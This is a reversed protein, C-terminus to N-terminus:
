IRMPMVVCVYDKNKEPVIITPNLSNKFEFIAFDENINQLVDKIFSPNFSIEIPEGEYNTELEVEGFGVGSTSASIKLLNSKFCFKIVASGELSLKDVTLIAMQKVASLTNKVNLKVKSSLTRPIVQEYNPFTGEILTSTFIIEEMEIALKNDTIGIKIIESKLETSLLRLIDSIAKNPVIAKGFMQTQIQNTTIYALRRGDTAVMKLQGNEVIFYTGNLVYRQTDKSVAFITKKLMSIFLNRKIAFSEKKPIEPIIPYETYSIGMLNFKSKGSKINIQNTEDSNIEIEDKTSLEKIVDAFKKAPVTIGGDEIIEGKICCKVAIELDTSSLKIKDINTEFLINSLVPLTSKSSTVPLVIQIGKILEEKECIVRM